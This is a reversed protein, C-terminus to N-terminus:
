RLRLPPRNFAPRRRYTLAWVGVALVTIPWLFCALCGLVRDLLSRQGKTEAEDLTMHTAFLAVAVYTAVALDFWILHCVEKPDFRGDPEPDTHHCGDLSKTLTDPSTCFYGLHANLLFKLRSWFIGLAFGADRSM